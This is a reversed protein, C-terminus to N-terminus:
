AIVLGIVIPAHVAARIEAFLYNGDPGALIGFALLLCLTGFSAMVLYIYGARVNDSNRHHAVVLCWSSLSMFEWALLFSFADSALVVLNMGALFVPFFPLVRGPTSEHRGYGIAYLSAAAGGLNTVALFFAALSDFHFHAGLWPLGLPLVSDTAPSAVHLAANIFLMASIMLTAGYTASSASRRNAITPAVFSLILLAVVGAFSVTLM